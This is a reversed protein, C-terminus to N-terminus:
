HIIIAIKAVQLICSTILGMPAVKEQLLWFVGGSYYILILSRDYNWVLLKELGYGFFAQQLLMIFTWSVPSDIFNEHNRGDVWKTLKFCDFQACAEIVSVFALKIGEIDMYYFMALGERAKGNEVYSPNINTLSVVDREGMKDFVKQADGIGLDCLTPVVTGIKFKYGLWGLLGNEDDIVESIAEEHNEVHDTLQWNHHTLLSAFKLFARSLSSTLSRTRPLSRLYYSNISHTFADVKEKMAEVSAELRDMRSTASADRHEVVKPLNTDVSVEMRDIKSGYRREVVEILKDLKDALEDM